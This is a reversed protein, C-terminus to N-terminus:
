ARVEVKDGTTNNGTTNDGSTADGTLALLAQELGAGEVRLDTLQEDLVLWRRLVDEPAATAVQVRDGDTTVSLVGPLTRLVSDAVGTRAVITRDPLRATLGAPTDAAVVHGRHLVVVRDAVAAAEEVIHTTLLIGAGADRRAAITRWFARRSTIDLGVTPEDLLLLTPDGVLAMALAVRQQQGGSLKGARRRQLDTIGVEALVPGAATAPRGARVAAGRVLEAVTLTRPFGMSQQVVGLHRRTAARRPDGGCVRVQGSQPALLGTALGVLTTKGAGNPGLLAVCEGARVTMDVSDLATLAGYRHHAGAIQLVDIM